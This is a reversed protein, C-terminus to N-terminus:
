EARGQRSPTSDQSGDGRATVSEWNVDSWKVSLVESPCRLGGYRALAIITRWMPDCVALIRETKKRTVYRYREHRPVAKSSVEAFPNSTTIKQRM